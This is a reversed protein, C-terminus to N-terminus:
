YKNYIFIYLYFHLVSKKKGSTLYIFKLFQQNENESSTILSLKTLTLSQLLTTSCKRTSKFNTKYNSKRM